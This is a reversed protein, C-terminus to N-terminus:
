LRTIAEGVGGWRQQRTPAVISAIDSAVHRHGECMKALAGHWPLPPLFEVCSLDQFPGLCTFDDFTLKMAELVDENGM